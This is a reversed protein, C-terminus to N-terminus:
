KGACHGTKIVAYADNRVMGGDYGVVVRQGVKLDKLEHVAKCEKDTLNGAAHTAQATKTERNYFPTEDVIALKVDKGPLQFTFDCDKEASQAHATELAAKWNERIESSKAERENQTMKETKSHIQKLM